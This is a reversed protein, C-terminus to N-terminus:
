STIPKPTDTKPLSINALSLPLTRIRTGTLAFIANALAPAVPPLGPEGLGGIAAGTEIFHVEIKPTQALLMIPYASFNRQIVAGDQLTIQEALAASLGMIIGGAVQHQANDPHVVIGCDVVAVVRDIRLQGNTDWSVEIVHAAVSGMAEVMAIGRGRGKGLPTQWQAKDAVAELVKRHRGNEPLHNQRFQFPDIGAASALEDIFCETYFGHQTHDVARWAGTPFDHPCDVYRVRTTAINYPIAAAEAPDQDAICSQDWVLAKGDNAVAGEIVSTLQPRYAGHTFDEERSWILKVPYPLQPAINAMQQLQPATGPFRRGFSGGIPTPNFSVKEVDLGAAKAIIHRASLPDQISGWISLQGNNFHGTLSIPEMSAHHLFPMRYTATIKKIGVTKMAAVADGNEISTELTGKLAREQATFLDESSRIASNALKSAPDKGFKPSLADVGKKATWYGRAVVVVANPLRLVKEVGPLALAPADDVSLLVEGFVPAFKITAVRMNPLQVDIGYVVKGQVKDPIDLRAPSTGILSFQKRTKFTPTHSLNREAARQALEGYRLTRGSLAHTVLSNATSLEAPPVKLEASAVALLAERAAAGAVRMGFQGTMRLATSGGTIQLTNWRAAQGFIADATSTVFSPLSVGSAIFARVMPGNAFSLDAPATEVRVHKWDGDLEELCMQALATYIGQGMDVHPVYLTIADDEAIKLWGSFSSENKKTTLEAARSVNSSARWHVGFIGGGVLAASGILFARRKIGM